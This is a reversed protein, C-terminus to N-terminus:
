GSVKGTEVIVTLYLHKEIHLSCLRGTDSNAEKWKYEAGVPTWWFFLTFLPGQENFEGGGYCCKTSFWICDQRGCLSYCAFHCIHTSIQWAMFIEYNHYSMSIGIQNGCNPCKAILQANQIYQPGYLTFQSVSARPGADIVRGRECLPCRLPQSKIYPM